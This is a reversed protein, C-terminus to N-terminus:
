EFRDKHGTLHMVANYVVRILAVIVLSGIIFGLSFYVWPLFENFTPTAYEGALAFTTSASPLSIGFM